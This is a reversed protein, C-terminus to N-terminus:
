KISNLIKNLIIEQDSQDILLDPILEWTDKPFDDKSYKVLDKPTLFLTKNEIDDIVNLDIKQHDKVDISCINIGRKKLLKALSEPDGIGAILSVDRNEFEDILRIKGDHINKVERNVIEFFILNEDYLGQDIRKGNVLLHDLTELRELGERLPGAPLLHRNGFSRNSSVVAFEIDRKLGYHQLGDDSLIVDVDQNSLFHAALSRKKCVCVIADTHRLLYVAEDGFDEANSNEDLLYPKSTSKKGKYGRSVIGVKKGSRSLANALYLTFPTKGTGGINLNGIIIVPIDPKSSPLLGLDFLARRTNFLFGYLKSLLILLFPPKEDRYWISELTQIIRTM